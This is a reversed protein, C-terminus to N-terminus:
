FTENCEQEKQTQVAQGKEARLQMCAHHGYAASNPALVKGNRELWTSLAYAEGLFPKGCHDCPGFYDGGKGTARVAYRRACVAEQAQIATSM